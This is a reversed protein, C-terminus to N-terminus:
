LIVKYGEKEIVEKLTKDLIEKTLSIVVEGKEHSPLAKEVGPLAELAKKVHAECHPCMMGEVKLVKEMKREKKKKKGEFSFLNLRLANSVVFFSSFSMAAAGFMPVLKLGWPMFVGAALPIGIINYCFAWFLNERINRGTKRSLRILGPILSLKQGLIVVESADKAVQVGSGIAVGLDAGSLAPADNIGDGVMMVKGEEKLKRVLEEKGLPLVGAYVRDIGVSKAISLATDERDGTIMVPLIGMEKLEKVARSADEKVTDSLAILGCFINEKACFVVTKGDGSLEKAKELAEHPIGIEQGIGELKSLIVKEGSVTGRVGFGPLTEFNEVPLLKEGGAEEVIAAAVPHLSEKELSAAFAILEEKTIGYAEVHSVKMKGTTVTGTKDLVVIETKGADELAKGTKFLVGKKAAVGNAVMIAVPTALGLACPCSVVMVSIGYSLASGLKEGLLLWIIFTILSLLMVVPVFVGSVRDALRASPAKTAGLATVRKIVQSLATGEGAELVRIELTGTLNVTGTYVADGAKKEVPVSEGTFASEDVDSEGNEIVGDVSIADGSLVQVLDGKKVEGLSLEVFAGDRYVRAMQPSLQELARIADTTKGKSREELMKGLTIVVLIMAASEFYLGSLIERQGFVDKTFMQLFLVLSYVFSVGSGMAVLTDMNPSLHWLARLGRIFFRRHIFLILLSLIFQYVGRVLPTMFSPLPLGFMPGMSVYMLFLLLVLSSIFSFLMGEKKEKEETKKKENLLMRYGAKEIAKQVTKEDYKGSLTMTGTLLSVSAKEVGEVAGAAKEVRASCAACTMGEVVYTKM